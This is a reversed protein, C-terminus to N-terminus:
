QELERDLEELTVYKGQEMEAQIRRSKERMEPDHEFQWDAWDEDDFARIMMIVHGNRILLADDDKISEELVDVSPLGQSIDVMKM